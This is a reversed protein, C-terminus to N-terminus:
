TWKQTVGFLSCTLTVEQETASWQQPWALCFRIMVSVGLMAPTAATAGYADMPKLYYFGLGSGM